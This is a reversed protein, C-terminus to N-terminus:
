PALQPNYYSYVLQAVNAVVREEFRFFPEAYTEREQDLYIAIAFDGGPSRVIGADAQIFPPIWGSKHEVRVFAPVGAVMRTRDGNRSLRDLMDQCRNANLTDFQKLLPGNGKACADLWVYLQGMEAPTTRLATNQTTTFPREGSNVPARRFTPKYLKIYDETEFPVYLLTNTLGLEALRDSMLNVGAFADETTTGEVSAALLLNAELNDSEVIMKQLAAEQRKSFSGLSAYANLMIPMKITSAANFVSKANVAAIQAGDDLDYVAVGMIGPWEDAMAELQEQLQAATPSASPTLPLAVTRSLTQTALLETIIKNAAATDLTFSSRDLVFVRSITETDSIVTIDGDTGVFEGALTELAATLKADDYAVPAPLQEGPSADLAQQILDATPLRLGLDTASLTETITGTTLVVPAEAYIGLQDELREAARDAPMGGLRVGGVRVGAPITPVATPAATATPADTAVPAATPAPATPALATPATAADNACATCFSLAVFATALASFRKNLM